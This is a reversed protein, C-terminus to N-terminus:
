NNPKTPWIVNYPFGAQDTIDLLARRYAAYEAQVAESLDNWRLSNTVIPDVERSLIRDRLDRIYQGQAADLEEQTPPVYPQVEVGSSSILDLLASNDITSDTDDLKLCYPIWGYNPHNIECDIDGVENLVKVNKIESIEITM